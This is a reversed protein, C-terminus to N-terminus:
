YTDIWVNLAIEIGFRAYITHMIAGSLGVLCYEDALLGM